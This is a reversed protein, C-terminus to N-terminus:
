FSCDLVVAACSGFLFRQLDQDIDERIPRDGSADSSLQQLQPTKAVGHEFGGLFFRFHRVSSEPVRGFQNEVAHASMAM